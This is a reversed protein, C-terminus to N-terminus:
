LIGDLSTGLESFVPRHACVLDVPAHVFVHPAACQGEAERRGETYEV